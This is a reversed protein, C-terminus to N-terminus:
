WPAIFGRFLDTSCPPVGKDQLSQLHRHRPNNMIKNKHAAYAAHLRAYPRRQIEQIEHLRFSLGTM